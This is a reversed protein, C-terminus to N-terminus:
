RSGKRHLEMARRYVALTERVVTQPSHHNAVYARARAGLRAAMERDDLMRGIQRALDDIDDPRAKLGTVGHEVIESLGSSDTCVVPCGQLMAELATYGQSERRSAVVTVMAQCRLACIQAPALMGLASVQQLLLPDEFSAVFERLHITSGDARVLGRDPGVFVLRLRPRESLLRRFAAIMLDGGKVVDFRGVFLLMQLDCQPLSWLRVGTALALPNVVHAAIPPNLAFFTLTDSLTCRSPSMIAPLCALAEGEALVKEKGSATQLEQETLHLFAPGHLKAVTAFGTRRAVQGVFGFSEEMEVVDIPSKSHIREFASVIAKGYRYVPPSGARARGGVAGALREALGLSVRHVDADRVAPDVDPSVISVRHGQAQLEAKMADVYTVIGNPVRGLPWAPTFLAVHM